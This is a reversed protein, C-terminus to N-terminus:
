KHYHSLYILEGGMHCIVSPSLFTRCARRLQLCEIFDNLKFDKYNLFTKFLFMLNM